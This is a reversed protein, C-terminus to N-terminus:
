HMYTDFQLEIIPTSQLFNSPAKHLLQLTISCKDFWETGVHAIIHLSFDNGDTDNGDAATQQRYHGKRITIVYALM